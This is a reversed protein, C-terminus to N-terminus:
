FKCVSAGKKLAKLVKNYDYKEKLGQAHYTKTM